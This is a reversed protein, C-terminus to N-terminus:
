RACFGQGRVRAGVGVDVGVGVGVNVGISHQLFCRWFIAAKRVAVTVCGCEASRIL